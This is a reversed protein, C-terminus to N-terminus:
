SQPEKNSGVEKVFDAVFDIGGSVKDHSWEDWEDRADTYAQAITREGDESSMDAIARISGKTAGVVTGVGKAMLNAMVKLERM